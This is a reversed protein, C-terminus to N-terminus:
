MDEPLSVADLECLVVSKAYINSELKVYYYQIYLIHICISADYHYIDYGIRLPVILNRAQANTSNLTFKGTSNNTIIVIVTISFLLNNNDLTSKWLNENRMKRIIHQWRMVRKNYKGQSIIQYIHLAKSFEFGTTCLLLISVVYINPANACSTACQFNM